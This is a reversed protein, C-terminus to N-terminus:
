REWEDPNFGANRPAPYVYDFFHQFLNKCDNLYKWFESGTMTSTQQTMTKGKRRPDPIQRLEQGLVDYHMYNRESEVDPTYTASLFAPIVIKWYYANITNSRGPSFEKITLRHQRNRLRPLTDQLFEWAPKLGDQPHFDLEHSM